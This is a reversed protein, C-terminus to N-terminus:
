PPAKPTSESKLAEMEEQLSRYDRASALVVGAAQGLAILLECDEAEFDGSSKNAVLLAGLLEGKWEIWCVIYNRLRLPAPWADFPWVPRENEAAVLLSRDGSERVHQLKAASLVSRYKPTTEGRPGLSVVFVDGLATAAINGRLDAEILSDIVEVQRAFIHDEDSQGYLSVAGENLRHLKAVYEEIRKTKSELTASMENFADMLAGLEHRERHELRFELKGGAIRGTAAVLRDLPGTVSRTLLSSIAFAVIFTLVLTVVLITWSREVQATAAKTRRQLSPGAALLLADVVEDIEASTAAAEFQLRQRSEPNLFATIFTGYQQKYTQVLEFIRDLEHQVAPDHHCDFCSQVSRDLEQVNAIIDDLQNAFATGSVQLDQQSRQLSHSLSQRLDEIQHSAIV